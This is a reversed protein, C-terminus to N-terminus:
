ELFSWGSEFWGEGFPQCWRLEARVVVDRGKVGHIHITAITNPGFEHRGILGLARSSLDRSFAEHVKDQDRGITIKLPRCFPKRDISRRERLNVAQIERLLREIADIAM